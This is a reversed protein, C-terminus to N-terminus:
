WLYEIHSGVESGDVAVGVFDGIDSDGVDEDGVSDGVAYGVSTGVVNEGVALLWREM